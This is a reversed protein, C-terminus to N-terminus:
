SKKLKAEIEAKLNEYGKKGLLAFMNNKYSEVGPQDFPNVDLMYGSVGCAYEFFYILEGITSESIEPISIEIGPVGGDYHAVMTGLMAKETLYSLTKGAIYNMGDPDDKVSPIKLNKKPSQINLVTEFIMREGDQIYQGMSHLDSTFNVGAPFIGKQEKGESEGYLQKWWETFYNLSPNYNVLIEVKKGIDYLANRLSAYLCARNNAPENENKLNNAMKASGKLISDIKHGAVAIPLLGVPTLVSYRGGVDDPIVFTQFGYEDSLKKLAGRSKDTTSIIRSKMKKKGYKKKVLELLFRFALAPETTTGSKSVVNVSFDKDELFNLLESHYTSDIHHGAYIVKTGKKNKKMMDFPTQLAEIVSRAGLYSGGIGVVVLYDSDEQIQKATNKIERIESDKIQLPLDVWGLFESGKGTKNHLLNRANESDQLKKELTEKSIFKETFNSQIKIESMIDGRFDQERLSDKAM